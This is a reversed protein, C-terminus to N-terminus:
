RELKTKRTTRPTQAALRKEVTWLNVAGHGLGGFRDNREITRWFGSDLGSTTRGGGVRLAAGARTGEHQEADIVIGRGDLDTFTEGHRGALSASAVRLRTVWGPIRSPRMREVQLRM